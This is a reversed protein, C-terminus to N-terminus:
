NTTNKALYVSRTQPCQSTLGGGYKNLVKVVATGHHPPCNGRERRRSRKAKYSCAGRTLYNSKNTVWRALPYCERALLFYQPVLM